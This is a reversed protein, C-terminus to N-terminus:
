FKLINKLKKKAEEELRKKEEAQRKKLADAAKKKEADLAAAAKKKEAELTAKAKADFLSAMDLSFKPETFTGSIKIPVTLGKLDKIEKGGQGELSGVVAAEVHYDISEKVLHVNGKGGIRFLPTKASLDDNLVLGDHIVVSGRLEAFDTQKAQEPTGSQKKYKAYGDRILQAINIGKVAGNEFSFSATGNLSKRISSPELGRATLKAAVNAKGTVYDEGMFDKLLPGAQVGSLKEDLGLLPKDGRVDLTINGSYSGQYLKAGLPHIRFVGEKANVTVIIAESRLNMVKLKGLRATGDIDLGRLMELPLEVPQEAEAAKPEEKVPEPPPPPLYRDVDLEDLNLDYRLIPKAFRKVSAAGSLTSQDFRVMLKNVTAHDTGVDFGTAFSAKTLTNPDAMEPLTIKLKGLLERPVFTNSKLEGNFSPSENLQSGLLAGSLEIDLLALKLDDLSLSQAEGLDVAYRTAFRSGALAAASFGEPMMKGIASGLKNGDEIKLQVDGKLQPGDLLKAGSLAVDLATGLSRLKLTTPQLSQQQLDLDVALDLTTGGLAAANFGAPLSAAFPTTLAQGDKVEVKLTAKVAPEGLIREANAELAIQSGLAELTLGSVKALQQQLDAEADARLKAVMRGGPFMPGQADLDLETKQLAYRQEKLGLGITSAFRLHGKVEPANAAFDFELTLPIPDTLNLEGSTLNLSSIEARQQQQQDDWLLYANSVLVGGINLGALAQLPDGEAAPQEPKEEEAAPKVLDDWNSTGSANRALQLRLGDLAITDMEVRKSLLPLLRIKVQARDIAAFPQDGFGPANSFEVKGLKVGIWPFVSLKMPEVIRLERGTQEKVMATIEDRYDNPDIVLPVIIMAAVVLAVVVGFGIGVIKLIKM